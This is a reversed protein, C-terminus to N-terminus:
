PIGIPRLKTSNNPDKFFCFFYTDTFYPTINFPFNDRFVLYFM